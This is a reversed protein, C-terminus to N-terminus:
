KKKKPFIFKKNVDLNVPSTGQMKIKGTLARVVAEQMVDSNSYVNICTNVREFYENTNYPNGFNVVIVKEKPMTNIAWVSQGEDDYVQLPALPHHVSRAFAVIIRDYRSSFDETWGNNEYLINHQFDITFGERKLKDAFSKLGKLNADGGKGPVPTVALVLIKENKNTLPLMKNRDRILTIAKNSISDSVKQMAVTQAASIDTYLIRNAGLVGLKKKLSWARALADDLRSMPIEGRTLRAELSDMFEYSPWLLIDVGAKFSEIEGELQNKYWGRFGAMTMADSVIVGKFNMKEKLLGTLLEKSLSAPLYNGNIIEKKSQYAPLSIHGPMICYVGADILSKFVKGHMQQWDAASLFNTTTLMHQDRYDVGDGPFHKITSAVNNQQLGRIQETLLRIAKDPEDSVSRVNTVPNFPNINLDAVPHLVWNVGVSRSQIAFAKGYERALYPSNAAGLAMENPFSVMGKFDVGTEYDQQFILPLESAQQYRECAKRTYEFFDENEVGDYLKWGMFFGTVPYRKFFGELTGGGLELEKKKDPLMLMLQGIKQRLTLRSPDDLGPKVQAKLGQFAFLFLFLLFSNKIYTM